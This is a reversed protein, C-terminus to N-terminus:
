TVWGSPVLKSSDPPATHTNKEVRADADGRHIAGDAINSATADNESASALEDHYWRPLFGVRDEGAEVERVAADDLLTVSIGVKPQFAVRWVRPMDAADESGTEDKEQNAARVDADAGRVVSKLFTLFHHGWDFCVMPDWAGRKGRVMRPIQMTKFSQLTTLQGALTRFGVVIEQAPMLSSKSACNILISVPVGLLFSQFYFKLLKKEFRAEDQAGRIVMSTKLEVLDNTKGTFKERACDVEGGIVLRTDGLKTKVVCCWQVNTDVDGGWGEPHGEMRECVGPRSSTSWAEFSYGYYSQLRHHPAMDEKDRLKADSLHEEFYLTGGVDMVNM